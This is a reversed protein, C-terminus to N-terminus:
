VGESAGLRFRRGCGVRAFGVRVGLQPVRSRATSVTSALERRVLHRQRPELLSLLLLPALLTTGREGRPNDRNNYVEREEM